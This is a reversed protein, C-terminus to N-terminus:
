LTADYWALVQKPTLREGDGIHSLQKGDQFLVFSPIGRLGQAKAIELNADRDADFWNATQSVHGRISQVFPKIAKCDGCWDASLFMVQRGPENIKDEIVQDSNVEPEYFNM